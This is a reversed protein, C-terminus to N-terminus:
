EQEQNSNRPSTEAPSSAATQKPDTEKPDTQKPDIETPDVWTGRVERTGCRQSIKAELELLKILDGTSVPVNEEENDVRKKFKHITKRLVDLIDQDNLATSMALPGGARQKM